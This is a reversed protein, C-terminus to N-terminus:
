GRPRGPWDARLLSMIATDWRQGDVLASSRRVGELTFGSRQYTRIAAANWTYVNLELREVTTFRFAEEIVRDIMSGALGQGRMEPAIAVRCILANGNRWDFGLQVHGVPAGNKEAMWCLRKPPETEGDELMKELQNQSLPFDLLPGGWQALEPRTPFWDLLLPFHAATFPILSPMTDRVCDLCGALVLVIGIAQPRALVIKEAILRM